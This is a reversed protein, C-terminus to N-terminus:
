HRLNSLIKRFINFTFKYSSKRKLLFFYFYWSVDWFKILKQLNGINDHKFVYLWLDFIIFNFEFKPYINKEDNAKMLKSLYRGAVKFQNGTMPLKSGFVKHVEIEEQTPEIGLNRVYKEIIENLVPSVKKTNAQSYSTPTIRYHLLIDKINYLKFEFSARIWLEYDESLHKEYRLKHEELIARRMIVTPHAICNVFFLMSKIMEPTEPNINVASAAGFMEFGSGSIGIDPHSDMFDVQVQIRNPHAIDDGDM